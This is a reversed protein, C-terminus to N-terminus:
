KEALCLWKELAIDEPRAKPDIECRNLFDATKEQFLGKLNGYIMKRKHAFGAKVIQFFKDEGGNKFCNKSIEDIVLIASDVKPAPSFAGAKVIGAIKPKGYVKVSISLISEKGNRAVVREAVEKQVLLVIKKPQPWKSLANRLIEGTIYYPINAVLKYNDATLNASAPDFDLIDKNILIFRDEAMERQFKEDLLPILRNDKEVSTVFAGHKLLIETLSGEGPGIELVLDGRNIEASDAIKRLANRDKLFHQGLSKKKLM